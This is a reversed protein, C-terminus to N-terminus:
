FMKISKKLLKKLDNKKLTITRQLQLLANKRMKYYKKRDKALM